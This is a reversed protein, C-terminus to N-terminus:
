SIHRALYIYMYKTSSFSSPIILFPPFLELCFNFPIQVRSVVFLSHNTGLSHQLCSKGCGERPCLWEQPRLARTVLNVSCILVSGAGGHSSFPCQLGIVESEVLFKTRKHLCPSGSVSELISRTLFVTDPLISPKGTAKIWKIPLWIGLKQVKLTSM